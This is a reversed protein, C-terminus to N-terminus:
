AVKIGMRKEYCKHCEYHSAHILRRIFTKIPHNIETVFPYGDKAILLLKTKIKM